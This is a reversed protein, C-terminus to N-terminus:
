TILYLNLNFIFTFTKFTKGQLSFWQIIIKVACAITVLDGSLLLDIIKALDGGVYFLKTTQPIVDFFTMIFFGLIALTKSRAYPWVGYISMCIRTAKISKDLEPNLM